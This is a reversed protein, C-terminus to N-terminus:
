RQRRGRTLICLSGVATLILVAGGPEPAARLGSVYVTSDLIPDDRDGIIFRLTNGTANVPGGFTLLPSGGPALVGDLETGVIEDMDPHTINVPLARVFAVNTGNLFMGFGDFYGDSVYEPYEESGFVVNFRVQDFGQQMDFHVLLETVDFHDFTDTGVTTIPDLLSEQAPTAPIGVQVPALTFFVTTNDDLTNPGDGYGPLTVTAGAGSDFYSREEVAGTSLVIGGGIGYTGSANTYTGSSTEFQGPAEFNEQRHGSLSVGTVVVGTGGAGLLADLLADVNQTGTTVISQAPFAVCLASSSAVALLFREIRRMM